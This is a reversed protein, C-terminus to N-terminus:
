KFFRLFLHFKYLLIVFFSIAHDLCKTFPVKYLDKTFSPSFFVHFYQVFMLFMDFVKNCNLTYLTGYM